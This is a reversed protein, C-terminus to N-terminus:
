SIRFRASTVPMVWNGHHFTRDHVAAKPAVSFVIQRFCRL